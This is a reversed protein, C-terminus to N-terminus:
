ITIKYAFHVTKQWFMKKRWKEGYKFYKAFRMLSVTEKIIIKFIKKAEMTKHAIKGPKCRFAYNSLIESANKVFAVKRKLM